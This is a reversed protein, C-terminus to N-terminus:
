FILNINPNFCSRTNHMYLGPMSIFPLLIFNYKAGNSPIVPYMYLFAKAATNSCGSLNKAGNIPVLWFLLELIVM